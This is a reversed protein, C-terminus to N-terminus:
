SRATPRRMRPRPQFFLLISGHLCINKGWFQELFQIGVPAGGVAQRDALNIKGVIRQQLPRQRERIHLVHQQSVPARGRPPVENVYVQVPDDFFVVELHNVDRAGPVAARGDHAVSIELASVALDIGVDALILSPKPLEKNLKRKGSSNGAVCRRLARARDVLAAFKAIREAM